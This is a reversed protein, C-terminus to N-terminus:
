RGNGNAPRHQVSGSFVRRWQLVGHVSVSSRRVPIFSIIDCHFSPQKNSLNRAGGFGTQDQEKQDNGKQECSRKM